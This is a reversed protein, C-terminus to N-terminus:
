KNVILRSDVFVEYGRELENMLSTLYKFLSVTPIRDEGKFKTM